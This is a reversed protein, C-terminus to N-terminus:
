LVKSSRKAIIMTGRIMTVRIITVGVGCVSVKFWGGFYIEHAALVM